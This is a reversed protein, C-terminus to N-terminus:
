GKKAANEPDAHDHGAHSTEGARAPNGLALGSVLVVLKGYM